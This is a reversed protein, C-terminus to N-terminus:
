PAKYGIRMCSCAMQNGYVILASHDVKIGNLVENIIKTRNDKVKMQKMHIMRSWGGLWTNLPIVAVMVGVGAFISIGMTFYLSIIAIVAQLPASWILQLNPLFDVICRVDVSM